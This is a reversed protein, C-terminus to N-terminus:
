APPANARMGPEKEVGDVGAARSLVMVASLQRAKFDCFPLGPSGQRSRVTVGSLEDDFNAVAM